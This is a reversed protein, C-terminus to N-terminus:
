TRANLAEWASEETLFWSEGLKDMRYRTVTRCKGYGLCIGWGLENGYRTKKWSIELVEKPYVCREKQDIVYVTDGVKCPLVKLKGSYHAQEWSWLTAASVWVGGDAHTTDVGDLYSGYSFEEVYGCHGCTYYREVEGFPESYSTLENVTGCIPCKMEREMCAGEMPM